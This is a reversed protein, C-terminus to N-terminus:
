KRKKAAPKKKVAPKKKAAPKKVSTRKTKATKIPATKKREKVAPASTSAAPPASSLFVTSLASKGASVPSPPTRGKRAAFCEPCYVPRDGSPKFPLQADKGCEYCVVAYMQRRNLFEHQAPRAPEQPSSVAPPPTRVVPKSAALAQALETLSKTMFSDLKENMVALQEQIQVMVGAVDNTNKSKRKM